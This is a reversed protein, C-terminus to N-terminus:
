KKVAKKAIKFLNVARMHGSSMPSDVCKEFDRGQM